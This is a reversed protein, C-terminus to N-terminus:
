WEHAHPLIKDEAYRRFQERIMAMTEDEGTTEVTARSLSDPLFEAAAAMVAQTKGESILREIATTRLPALDSETLGLDLPRVTEGQNMPVGGLLQACYESFLIQALLADIEGLQGEAELRTAWNATERLTEVYTVIWAFGHAAHQNATFATRDIRGNPALTEALRAETNAKFADLATVAEALTDILGPLIKSDKLAAMGDM